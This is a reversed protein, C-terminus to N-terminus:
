SPLRLPSRDEANHNVAGQLALCVLAMWATAASDTLRRIERLSWLVSSVMRCHSARPPRYTDCTECYRVTIRRWTLWDFAICEASRFLVQRGKGIPYSRDLPTEYSDEEFRTLPPEPDLNRPLIGTRRRSARSLKFHFVQICTLEGPDRLASVVFSSLSLGFLYRSRDAEFITM